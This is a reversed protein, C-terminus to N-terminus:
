ISRVRLVSSNAHNEQRCKANRLACDFHEKIWEKFEDGKNRAHPNADILVDLTKKFEELTKEAM